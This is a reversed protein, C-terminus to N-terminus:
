GAAPTALTDEDHRLDGRREHQESAGAHQESCEDCQLSCLAPHVRAMDKGDIDGRYKVSLRAPLNDIKVLFDDTPNIRKWTDIRGSEPHDGRPAIGAGTGGHLETGITVNAARAFLVRARLKTNDRRPEKAREANGDNRSAVEILEVTLAVFADCDNAFRKCLAHEGILVRDIPVYKPGIGDQFDIALVQRRGL